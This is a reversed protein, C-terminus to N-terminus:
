SLEPVKGRKSHVVESLARFNRSVSLDSPDIRARKREPGVAEPDFSVAHSRQGPRTRRLRSALSPFLTKAREKVAHYMSSPVQGIGHEMIYRQGAVARILRTKNKAETTNHAYEGKGPRDTLHVRLRSAWTKVDKPSMTEIDSESPLKRIKYPQGNLSVTGSSKLLQQPTTM